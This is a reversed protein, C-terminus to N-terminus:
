SIFNSKEFYKRQVYKGIEHKGGSIKIWINFMYLPHDPNNLMLIGYFKWLNM